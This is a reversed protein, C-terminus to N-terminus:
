VIKPDNFVGSAVLQVYLAALAVVVLSVWALEM